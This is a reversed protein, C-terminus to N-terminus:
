DTTVYAELLTLNFAIFSIKFFKEGLFVCISDSYVNIFVNIIIEVSKKDAQELKPAFGQSRPTNAFGSIASSASGSSIAM